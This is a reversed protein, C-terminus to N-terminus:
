VRKTALIGITRHLDPRIKQLLRVLIRESTNMWLIKEVQFGSRRVLFALFIPDYWTVHDSNVPSNGYVLRRVITGFGFPNPTTILVNGGIRLHKYISDLVLGPNSVHEILESVIALDFDEKDLKLDEANQVSADLGLEQFKKIGQEFLDVGLAYSATKAIEAHFPHDQIAADSGCCGVDLVSKERCLEIIFSSANEVSEQSAIENFKFVKCPEVKDPTQM